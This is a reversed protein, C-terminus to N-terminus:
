VVKFLTKSALLQGTNLYYVGKHSKIVCVVERTSKSLWDSEIKTSPSWDIDRPDTHIGITHAEM